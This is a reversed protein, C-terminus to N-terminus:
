DRHTAATCEIDGFWAAGRGTMALGIILLDAAEPVDAEVALTTWQPSQVPQVSSAHTALPTV